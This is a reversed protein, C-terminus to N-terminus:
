ENGNYRGTALQTDMIKMLLSNDIVVSMLPKNDKDYEIIQVSDLSVEFTINNGEHFQRGNGAISAGFM